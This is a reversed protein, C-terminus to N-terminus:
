TSTSPQKPTIEDEFKVKQLRKIIPELKNHVLYAGCVHCWVSLDALSVMVCHGTEEYHALGHANVYRSCFVDGCALCVWNEGKPCSKDAGAVEKPRGARAASSTMKGSIKTTSYYCCPRDFIDRPIDKPHELWLFDNLHPCNDKPTIAGGKDIGGHDLIFDVCDQVSDAGVADVAQSAAEFEFGYLSTLTEVMQLAAAITTDSRATAATAAAPPPKVNTSEDTDEENKMNKREASDITQHQSQRSHTCYQVKSDNLNSLIMGHSKRTAKSAAASTSSKASTM